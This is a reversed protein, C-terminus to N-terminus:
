VRGLATPTAKTGATTGGEYTGYGQGDRYSHGFPHGTNAQYGNGSFNSGQPQRWHHRDLCGPGGMASAATASFVLAGVILPGTLSRKMSPRM